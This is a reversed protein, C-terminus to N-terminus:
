HRRRDRWLPRLDRMLQDVASGIVANLRKAEEYTGEPAEEACRKFSTLASQMESSM